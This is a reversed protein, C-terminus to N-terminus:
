KLLIGPSFHCTLPRIFGRDGSVSVLLSFQSPKSVALDRRWLPGTHSVIDVRSFTHLRQGTLNTEEARSTGFIFVNRDWLAQLEWSRTNQFPACDPFVYWSFSMKRDLRLQYLTKIHNGLFKHESPKRPPQTLSPKLHLMKLASSMMSIIQSICKGFLIVEM